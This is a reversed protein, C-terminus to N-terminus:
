IEFGTAFVSQGNTAGATTNVYLNYNSVELDVPGNHGIPTVSTSGGLTTVLVTVGPAGNTTGAVFTLKGDALAGYQSCHLGTLVLRKGSGVSWITVTDATEVAVNKYASTKDKAFYYCSM